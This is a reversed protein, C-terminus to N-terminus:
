RGQGEGGEKDLRGGPLKRRGRPGPPVAGGRGPEREQATDEPLKQRLAHQDLQRERAEEDLLEQPPLGVQPVQARQVRDERRRQRSQPPRAGGLDLGRPEAECDAHLPCCLRLSASASTSIRCVVANLLSVSVFAGLPDVDLEDFVARVHGDGRGVDGLEHAAGGRRVEGRGGRGRSFHAPSTRPLAFSARSFLLFFAVPSLLSNSFLPRLPVEEVFTVEEKNLPHHHLHLFVATLSGEAAFTTEAHRGRSSM